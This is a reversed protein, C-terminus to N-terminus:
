NNEQDPTHFWDWIFFVAQDALTNTKYSLRNSFGFEYGRVSVLVAEPVNGSLTKSLSLCTQPTMHHTFPSHQFEPTINIIQLDEPIRGTHADIFCIREFENLEEALEPTLQLQFLFVPNEITSSPIESVSDPSIDRGFRHALRALIHWSVGDDQRDPNGYGVILTKKM